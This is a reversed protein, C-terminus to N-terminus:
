LVRFCQSFLEDSWGFLEVEYFSHLPYIVHNEELMGHTEYSVRDGPKMTYEGPADGGHYGNGHHLRVGVLSKGDTLYECFKVASAFIEEVDTLYESDILCSEEGTEEQVYTTQKIKIIFKGGRPKAAELREQLLAEERHRIAEDFLADWDVDPSWGQWMSSSPAQENSRNMESAQHKSVKQNNTKVKLAQSNDTTM